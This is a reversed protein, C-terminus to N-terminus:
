PTSIPQQESFYEQKREALADRIAQYHVWETRLNAKWELIQESDELETGVEQLMQHNHYRLWLERRLDDEPMAKYRILEEDPVMEAFAEIESVEDSRIEGLDIGTLQPTFQNRMWKLAMDALYSGIISFAIVAIPAFPGMFSGVFAGLFFGITSGITQAAVATWDTDRWTGTAFQHGVSAGAIAGLVKFPGPLFSTLAAGIMGGTFSGATGAWFEETSIFKFAAKYDLNTLDGDNAIAQQILNYGGTIAVSMAAFSSGSKVFNTVPSSKAIKLEAKLESQVKNLREIKGKIQAKAEPTTANKLETKLTSVRASSNTISQNLGKIQQAKLETGMKRIESKPIEQKGGPAFRGQNPGSSYRSVKYYKGDKWREITTVTDGTRAIVGTTPNNAGTIQGPIGRMASFSNLTNAANAAGVTVSLREDELSGSEGFDRQRITEIEQQITLLQEQNSQVSRDILAIAGDIQQLRENEVNSLQGSEAARELLDRELQLNYRQEARRRLTDEYHQQLSLQGLLETHSAESALLPVLPNLALTFILVICISCRM